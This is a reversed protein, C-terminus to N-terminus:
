GDATVEGRCTSVVVWLNDAYAMNEATLFHLATLLRKVDSQSVIMKVKFMSLQRILRVFDVEGVVKVVIEPEWEPVTFVTLTALSHQIPNAPKTDLSEM